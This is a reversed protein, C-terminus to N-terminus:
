FGSCNAFAFFTSTRDVGDMDIVPEDTTSCGNPLQTHEVLPCKVKGRLRGDANQTITVTCKKTTTKYVNSPTVLTVIADTSVGGAIKGSATFSAAARSVSVSFQGGDARCSVRADDAGDVVLKLQGDEGRQAVTFANGTGDPCAGLTGRDAPLPNQLKFQAGGSVVPEAKSSCSLALAALPLIALFRMALPM